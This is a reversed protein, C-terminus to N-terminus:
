SVIKVELLTWHDSIEVGPRLAYLVGSNCPFKVSHQFDHILHVARLTGNNLMMKKTYAADITDNDKNSNYFTIIKNSCMNLRIQSFLGKTSGNEFTEAYCIANRVIPLAIFVFALTISRYM